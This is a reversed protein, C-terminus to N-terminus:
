GSGALCAGHRLGAGVPERAQEAVAPGLRRVRQGALLFQRARQRHRADAVVQRAAAVVEADVVVAVDCTRPVPM